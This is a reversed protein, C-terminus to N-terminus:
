PSQAWGPIAWGVGGPSEVFLRERVWARVANKVLENVGVVRLSRRAEQCRNAELVVGVSGAESVMGEMSIGSIPMVPKLESVDRVARPSATLWGCNRKLLVYWSCSGNEQFLPECAIFNRMSKGGM